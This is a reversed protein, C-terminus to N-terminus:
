DESSPASSLSSLLLPHYMKLKEQGGRERERESAIPAMLPELALDRTRGGPDRLLHPYAAREARQTGLESKDKRQQSPYQLKPITDRKSSHETCAHYNPEVTLCHLINNCSQARTDHSLFFFFIFLVVVSCWNVHIVNKSVSCQM